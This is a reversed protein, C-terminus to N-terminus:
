WESSVPKIWGIRDKGHLSARLGRATEADVTANDTIDAVAVGAQTRKATIPM